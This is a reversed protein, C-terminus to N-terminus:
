SKPHLTSPQPDRGAGPHTDFDVGDGSMIRVQMHSCVGSGWPEHACDGVDGADAACSVDELWIKGTGKGFDLM